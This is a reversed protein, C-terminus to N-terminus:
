LFYFTDLPGVQTPTPASFEGFLGGEIGEVEKTANKEEPLNLADPEEVTDYKPTIRPKRQLEQLTVTQKSESRLILSGRLSM